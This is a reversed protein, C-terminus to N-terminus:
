ICIPVHRFKFVLREYKLSQTTRSDRKRSFIAVVLGPETSCQSRILDVVVVVVVVVASQRTSLICLGLSPVPTTYRSVM